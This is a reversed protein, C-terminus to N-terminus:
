KQEETKKFREDFAALAADAWRTAAEPKTCNIANAVGVWAQAWLNIRALQHEEIYDKM